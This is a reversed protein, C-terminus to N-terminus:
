PQAPNNVCGTGDDTTCDPSLWVFGQYHVWNYSGNRRYEIQYAQYAGGNMSCSLHDYTETQCIAVYQFHSRSWVGGGLPTWASWYSGNHECVQCPVATAASTCGLAALAALLVLRAIRDGTAKFHM